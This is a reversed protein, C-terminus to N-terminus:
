YWTETCGSPYHSARSHQLGLCLMLLAAQVVATAGQLHKKGLCGRWCSTESETHSAYPPSRWPWVIPKGPLFLSTGHQHQVLLPPSPSNQLPIPRQNSHVFPSLLLHVFSVSVETHGGKGTSQACLAQTCMHEKNRRTTNGNGRDRGWRKGKDEGKFLGQSVCKM